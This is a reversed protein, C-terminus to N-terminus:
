RAYRMVELAIIACLVVVGYFWAWADHARLLNRLFERRRRMMEGKV